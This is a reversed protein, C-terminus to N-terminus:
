LRKGRIGKIKLQIEERGNWTNIHPSYIVDYNRGNNEIKFGGEEKFNFWISGFSFSEQQMEMKLHEGGGGVVKSEGVVDNSIFNPEPNSTGFPELKQIEEILSFSIDKFNIQCDAWITSSLDKGYLKKRGYHNMRESFEKLNKEEITLGAASKHGGYGKLCDESYKFAEYLNFDVASRASGKGNSGILVVPKRYRESIRSAVIGLLGIHWKNESLIIVMDEELNITKEIRELAESMMEKGMAQRTRNERDLFSSIKEAIERKRTTMLNVGCNASGLRGAANIMPALIYGIHWATLEKRGLRSARILESIWPFENRKMIDLGTKVLIRNEGSLSSVDAITGFAALAIIQNLVYESCSNGLCAMAFKYAIGVGALEKFPYNCDNQKPNLVAFAESISKDPIHHDTVILDLGIEKAFSVEKFNSIGTDVTILLSFGQEKSKKIVDQNLGYGETLRNPIYFSPEMGLERLTMLLVSTATIGDADYDGFVLVKENDRKARLVREVARDMGKMLFPDHMSNFNGNLFFDAERINTIGRNILVQATIKSILLTSALEEQLATNQPYIKWNATDM